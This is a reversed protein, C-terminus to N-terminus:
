ARIPVLNILHNWFLSLFTSVMKKEDSLSAKETTEPGNLANESCLIFRRSMNKGNKCFLSFFTQYFISYHSGAKTQM